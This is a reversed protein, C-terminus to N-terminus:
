ATLASIYFKSASVQSITREDSLLCKWQLRLKM